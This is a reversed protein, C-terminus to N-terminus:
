FLTGGAPRTQPTVPISSQWEGPAHEYTLEQTLAPESLYYALVILEKLKGYAPDAYPPGAMMAAAGSGRVQKGPIIKLAEADHASLLAHRADASLAAFPQGQGAKAKGDIAAMARTLDYRRQGSAWNALLADIVGPVGADLAGATDTRPVITDAVASLLAFTAGDLYRPAAAAARALASSSIGATATAGALIMMRELLARRNMSFPDSM